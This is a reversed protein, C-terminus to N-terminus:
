LGHQWRGQWKHPGDDIFKRLQKLEALTKEWPQCPRKQDPFQVHVEVYQAGSMIADTCAELGVCHDSWGKHWIDGEANRTFAARAWQRSYELPSPYRGVCRLYQVFSWDVDMYDPPVSVLITSWHPRCSKLLGEEQCEGSGIKIAEIGLSALFPVRDATFVTTLWRVDAEACWAKVQHHLDDSMECKALWDAQADGPRLHKVQFSQTKVWDAGADKCRFIYERLLDPDGGWGTALECVLQASM